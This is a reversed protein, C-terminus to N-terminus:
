IQEYYVEAQSSVLRTFDMFHELADSWVKEAIFVTDDEPDRLALFTKIQMTLAICNEIRQKCTHRDKTTMLRCMDQYCHKLANSYFLIIQLLNAQCAANEYHHLYVLDIVDTLNQSVFEEIVKNQYMLSYGM